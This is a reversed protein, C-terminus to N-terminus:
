LTEKESHRINNFYIPLLLILLSSYFAFPFKFVASLMLVPFYSVLITFSKKSRFFGSSFIYWFLFLLLFVLGYYNLIDLFTNHVDSTEYSIKSVTILHRSLDSGFLQIGFPRQYDEFNAYAISKNKNFILGDASVMESVMVDAGCNKCIQRFAFDTIGALPALWLKKNTLFATNM